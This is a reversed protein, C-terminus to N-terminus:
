GAALRPSGAEIAFTAALREDPSRRSVDPTLYWAAQVRAPTVDLLVYGRHEGELFKLHPLSSRISAGLTRDEDGTFYPPSSVAPTILEVAVSGEGTDPRYGNWPDRPVDFAWSSHVDGTLIVANGTRALLDRVRDREAQYGDWADPNRVPAGPPTFPSFMVQQGILSWTTGAQKSSQLSDALWTEQRVGMLRRRPDALGRENTRNVQGDRLSRTDLMALTALNGFSFSRYAHFSETRGPERVPMWELYARIAAMRRNAWDGPDIASGSGGFWANDAFEHDDWVAIFPHTRHVEQLDPDRRYTAYRRRYDDLSVAEHEPDPVRGIATGDGFVGNAFEYIYDGLHLVADLDQRRAIAAYANFFGAPYNSCSVVAVRLHASVLPLTKTRGISSSEGLADFRYRYTRGADLGRVDVKITFDRTSSATVAGSRVAQGSDAVTVEWRVRVPSTSGEPPTVRTWIVVGDPRPDGSAVGHAFVGPADRQAELLLPYLASGVATGLFARRTLPVAVVV